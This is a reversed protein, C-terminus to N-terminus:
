GLTVASLLLALSSEGTAEAAEEPPQQGQEQGEMRWPEARGQRGM